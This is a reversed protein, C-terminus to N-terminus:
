DMNAACRLISPPEYTQLDIEPLSTPKLISGQYPSYRPLPRIMRSVRFTQRRAGDHLKVSLGRDSGPGYPSKSFSVHGFLRRFSEALNGLPENDRRPPEISV